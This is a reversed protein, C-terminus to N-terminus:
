RRPRYWSRIRRRAAWPTCCTRQRQLSYANRAGACKRRGGTGSLPWRQPWARRFRPDPAETRRGAARSPRAQNRVPKEGGKWNPPPRVSKSQVPASTRRCPCYNPRLIPRAPRQGAAVPLRGQGHSKGARFCTRCQGVAPIFEGLELFGPQLMWQGSWIAPIVSPDVQEPSQSPCMVLGEKHGGVYRHDGIKLHHDIIAPASSTGCCRGSRLRSRSCSCCRHPAAWRHIHTGSVTHPQVTGFAVPAYRVHSGISTARAQGHVPFGRSM